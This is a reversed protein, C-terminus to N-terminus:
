LGASVRAEILAFTARDNENEYIGLLDGPSTKSILMTHIKRYRIVAFLGALFAVGAFLQLGGSIGALNGEKLYVPGLMVLPLLLGIFGARFHRHTQKKRRVSVIDALNLVFSMKSVPM